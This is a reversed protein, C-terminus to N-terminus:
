PPGFPNAPSWRQLVELFEALVEDYRKLELLIEARVLRQDVDWPHEKLSEAVLRVAEELPGSGASKTRQLLEVTRFLWRRQREPDTECGMRQRVYRAAEEFRGARRAVMTLTELGMIRTVGGMPTRELYGRTQEIARPDDSARVQAVASRIQANDDSPFAQEVEKWLGATEKYQRHAYLASALERRYEPREPHQSCLERLSAIADPLNGLWRDLRVIQFQADLDDPFHSLIRQYLARAEQLRNRALQLRALWRLIEIEDGM